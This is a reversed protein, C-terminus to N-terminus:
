RRSPFFAARSDAFSAVCVMAPVIEGTADDRIEVSLVSQPQSASRWVSWAAILVFAARLTFTKV